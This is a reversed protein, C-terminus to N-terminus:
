SKWGIGGPGKYYKDMNRQLDDLTKTAGVKLEGIM